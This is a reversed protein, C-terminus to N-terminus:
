PRAPVRAAVDPGLNIEFSAMLGATFEKRLAAERLVRVEQEVQIRVESFDPLRAATRERVLVLHWGYASRFPGQWGASSPAESFLAEAFAQGFHGAIEERSREVYHVHYPFRDGYRAAEDAAVGRGNLESLIEGARVGASDPENGSHVFVHSFTMVAPVMFTARNQQYYRILEREDSPGAQGSAGKSIFDMKQVLRQRIVYDGRDLGFSLASRYLVEEEVYQDVINQMAAESLTDLASVPDERFTQTRYQVFEALAAEDVLIVSNDSESGRLWDWAVFLLLGILLFQVVPERFVFGPQM